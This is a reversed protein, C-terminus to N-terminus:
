AYDVECLADVDFNICFPLSTTSHLQECFQDLDMATLKYREYLHDWTRDNMDCSERAHISHDYPLDIPLEGGALFMLHSCWEKLFPIHQVDNYLSLAISLNHQLINDVPKRSWGIKNLVKGIKPGLVYGLPHSHTPWFYRSCYDLDVINNTINCFKVWFGLEKSHQIFYEPTFVGEYQPDLLVLSDDGQICIAFPPNSLDVDPLKGLLADLIKVANMHSNGSSTHPDGTNRSGIRFYMIGKNTFGIVIICEKLEIVVEQPIGFYELCKHEWALAQASVHSDQRKEDALIKICDEFTTGIRACQGFIWDSIDHANRGSTYLIWHNPNWSKNLAKSFAYLPPGFFANFSDQAASILRVQAPTMMRLVEIKIFAKRYKDKTQLPTQILSWLAQLQQKQRHTTFAGVRYNWADFTMPVYSWGPYINHFNQCIMEFQQDWDKSELTSLLQRKIVANYENAMTNASVHPVVVGISRSNSELNISNSFIIGIARPGLTPSFIHETLPEADYSDHSCFGTGPADTTRAQYSYFAGNARVPGCPIHVPTFNTHNHLAIPDPEYVGDNRKFM